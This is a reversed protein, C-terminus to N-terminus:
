FPKLFGDELIKMIKNENIRIDKVAHANGLSYDKQILIFKEGNSSDPINLSWLYKEKFELCENTDHFFYLDQQLIDRKNDPLSGFGVVNSYVEKYNLSHRVSGLWKWRPYTNPFVRHNQTGRM